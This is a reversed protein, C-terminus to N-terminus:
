ALGGAKTPPSEGSLIVHVLRLTNYRPPYQSQHQQEVCSAGQDTGRDTGARGITDVLRSVM